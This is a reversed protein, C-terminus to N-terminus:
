MFKEVKPGYRSELCKILETFQSINKLHPYYIEMERGKRIYKVWLFVQFIAAGSLEGPPYSVLGFFAKGRLYGVEISLIQEDAIYDSVWFKFIKWIGPRLGRFVVGGEKLVVVPREVFLAKVVFLASLLCIVCVGVKLPRHSHVFPIFSGMISILIFLVWPILRTVLNEFFAVNM